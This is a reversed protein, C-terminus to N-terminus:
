SKWKQQGYQKMTADVQFNERIETQFFNDAFSLM